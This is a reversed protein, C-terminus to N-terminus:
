LVITKLLRHHLITAIHFALSLQRNSCALASVYRSHAESSRASRNLLSLRIDVNYSKAFTQKRYLRIVITILSPPM